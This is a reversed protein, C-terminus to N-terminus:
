ILQDKLECNKEKAFLIKWHADIVSGVCIKGCSALTPVCGSESVQCTPIASPLKLRNDFHLVSYRFNSIFIGLFSVARGRKKEVNM